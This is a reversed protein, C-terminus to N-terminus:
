VSPAQSFSEARIGYDEGAQMVVTGDGNGEPRFELVVNLLFFTDPVLLTGINM